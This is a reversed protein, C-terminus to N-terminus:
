IRPDTRHLIFTMNTSIEEHEDFERFM